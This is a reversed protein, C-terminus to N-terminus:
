KGNFLIINVSHEKGDNVMTLTNNEQEINDLILKMPEHNSGDQSFSIHYMTELFRYHVRLTTWSAPLCPKFRLVEGERRLGLFSEVILQYMWGASGTYWTWGGRGAFQAVAYVDAAMVYPEVKYIAIEEPNSGHNIPNIMQLLEWVREKDGLAAFAMILWIAAHTYQGGNERVGPVYGKIYGPNLESKDFPPDFLQIIRKDKRVLFDNAAQMAMRSHDAEGAGSLVSWSQAISDIKCEDNVSSGLPTGNDFYARRYWKGDWGNKSINNRLLEAQVKCRAAFGPDKHLHAIEIFKSLIDFLFFALWLSEGRGHNGVKDMGDNWDGTGMLPLGHEGFKLGCEIAKVCHDYLSASKDSRLPLDFYAEEDVNLLRDELYFAFEDLIGRDGTFFVYRSTVYPLWLFDDSCRTRVGRGIPPHWWHQVDGEKYQRSACLLIQDKVLHPQTHLVSLVDQLQDRFGFAGGSQYFGSRAWLRSAITQYTLWGNTLIDLSKDPSEIQLTGVIKKWYNKVKELAEHAVPNGRFQRILNSATNADRA